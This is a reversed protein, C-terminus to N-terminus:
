ARSWFYPVSAYLLNWPRSIVCRKLYREFAPQQATVFFLYFFFFSPCTTGRPKMPGLYCCPIVGWIGEACLRPFFIHFFGWSVRNLSDTGGGQVATHLLLFIDILFSSLTTVTNRLFRSTCSSSLFQCYPPSRHLPSLTSYVLPKWRSSSPFPSPLIHRCM